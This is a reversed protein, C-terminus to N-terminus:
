DYNPWSLPKKTTSKSDQVMERARKLVDSDVLIGNLGVLFPVAAIARVASWDSDVLDVSTFAFLVRENECVFALYSFRLGARACDYAEMVKMQFCVGQLQKFASELYPGLEDASGSSDAGSRCLRLQGSHSRVLRAGGSRDYAIVTSM